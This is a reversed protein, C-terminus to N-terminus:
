VVQIDNITVNYGMFVTIYGGREDVDESVDVEDEYGDEDYEGTGEWEPGGKNIGGVETLLAEQVVALVVLAAAPAVPVVVLLGVELRFQLFRFELM